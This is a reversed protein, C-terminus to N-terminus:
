YELESWDVREGGNRTILARLTSENIRARLFRYSGDAFCANYGRRRGIELGQRLSEGFYVPKGRSPDLKPLPGAPDYTLDEPKTWPVPDGGEVVLLTSGPGDPFDRLTIGSKELFDNLTMGPGDFPTGPGVFLKCRTTGPPDSGSTVYDRPISALLKRNNPSDWPEDKDFRKYLDERSSLFPALLVRWSYLPRGDKDTITAPPLKGYIEHFNLLAQAVQQLSYAAEVSADNDGKVVFEPWHYETEGLRYYYLSVGLVFAGLVIGALVRRRQRGPRVPSIDNHMAHALM